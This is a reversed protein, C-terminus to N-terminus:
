AAQGGYALTSLLDEHRTSGQELHLGHTLAAGLDAWTIPQPDMASSYVEVLRAAAALPAADVADTLARLLQRDAPRTLNLLGRGHRRAVDVLTVENWCTLQHHCPHALEFDHSGAVLFRKAVLNHDVRDERRGPFAHCALEFDQCCTFGLVWGRARQYTLSDPDIGDLRDVLDALTLIAPTPTTTM